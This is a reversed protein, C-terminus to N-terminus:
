SFRFSEVMQDFTPSYHQFQEAPASGSIIYPTSGKLVTVQFSRAQLDHGAADRQTFTFVRRVSPQGATNSPVFQEAAYGPVQQQMALELSAAYLEPSVAKAANDVAVELEALGSPDRFQVVAPGFLAMPQPPTAWDTPAGVSFRGGPDRWAVLTAGPTSSPATASPRVTAAPAALSPKAAAAGALTPTTPLGPAAPLGPTAPLGPAALLGPAASTPMVLALTAIVITRQGLTPTAAAPLEAIATLCRELAQQIEPRNDPDTTKATDILPCGQLDGRAVFAQGTQFAAQSTARVVGFPDAVPTSAPAATPGCALTVGVLLGALSGFVLRPSLWGFVQM